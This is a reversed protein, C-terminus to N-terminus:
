SPRWTYVPSNGRLGQFTQGLCLWSPSARDWSGQDGSDMCYNPLLLLSVQPVLTM